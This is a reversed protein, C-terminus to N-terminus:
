EIEFAVYQLRGGREIQLVVADGREFEDIKARFASLLAMHMGNVAHIVDRPQLDIFQAQGEPSKAAVILGYERRLDPLMAAVQKDIEICLIGLRRVLNKEPSVLAALPDSPASQERVEPTLALRTDGRQVVLNIKEGAQRRYIADDFQRATEIAKANLTLVVDERKLGARYAPGDREM